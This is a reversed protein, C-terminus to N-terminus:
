FLLRLGREWEEGHRRSKFGLRLSLCFYISSVVLADDAAQRVGGCRGM